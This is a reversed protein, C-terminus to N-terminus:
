QLQLLSSVSHLVSALVSFFLSNQTDLKVCKCPDLISLIHPHEATKKFSPRGKLYGLSFTLYSNDSRKQIEHYNDHETFELANPYYRFM